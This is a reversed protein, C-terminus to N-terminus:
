EFVKDCEQKIREKAIGRILHANKQLSTWTHKEFDCELAVSFRLGRVVRLADEQFRRDPNDVAKIKHHVLDQIGGHPDLIVHVADSLINEDVNNHQFDTILQHDQLILTQSNEDYYRGQRELLSLFKPDAITQQNNDRLM